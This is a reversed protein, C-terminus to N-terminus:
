NPPLAVASGSDGEDGSASQTSARQYSVRAEPFAQSLAILTPETDRGWHKSLVFTRDDAYFPRDCFWWGTDIGPRVGALAAEVSSQDQHTGDVVLMRSRLHRRIDLISVGRATLEEIMERVVQRKYNPSRSSGEVVLQYKSLDRPDTRAREIQQEKRRLRVQYETAERLPLVQDIDLLTRDGLRYPVVRVCRIGMGELRNLWLVTTTIERGFDAAALIIRVDSSIEVTTGEDAASSGLFKDLQSSAEHYNLGAFRAYTEIVQEITMASVMAAYRLAQLDAHGADQTRKLEIVVLHASRDIALLDIRRRADEWDCFEEAIVLLDPDIVDIRTRLLQQLDQRERIGLSSFSAAPCDEL